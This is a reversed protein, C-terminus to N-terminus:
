PITSTWDFSTWGGSTAISNLTMKIKHEKVNRGGPNQAAVQRRLDGVRGVSCLEDDNAPRPSWCPKGADLEEFPIGWPSAPPSSSM